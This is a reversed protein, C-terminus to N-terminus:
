AFKEFIISEDNVGKGLLKERTEDIMMQNGCLYATVKQWDDALGELVDGVHGRAGQWSEDPRSLVLEFRFNAFESQLKKIEEFWFLDSVYRMGWVLRVQGKYGKKVLLGEIMPRFPVIGTGTGIFIVEKSSLLVDDEVVFNGLFGLLEVSDGVKLGLVYKSGIGMPTVDIILDIDAKGPLSAVSYSRRLGEDSVKLSVFQGPIFDAVEPLGIVLLWNNGALNEKRKVVGIMKKAIMDM